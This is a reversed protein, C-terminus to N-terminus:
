RPGQYDHHLISIGRQHEQTLMRRLNDCNRRLSFGSGRFRLLYQRWCHNDSSYRGLQLSDTFTTSLKLDNSIVMLDEMTAAPVDLSLTTRDDNVNIVAGEYSVDGDSLGPMWMSTTTTAAASSAFLALSLLKSM